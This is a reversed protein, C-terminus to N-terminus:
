SRGRVPVHLEAIRQQIYPIKNKTVDDVDGKLCSIAVFSLLLGTGTVIAAFRQFRPTRWASTDSAVIRERRRTVTSSMVQEEKNAQTLWVPRRCLSM